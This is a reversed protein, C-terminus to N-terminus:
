LLWLSFYFACSLCGKVIAQM